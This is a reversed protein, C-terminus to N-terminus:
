IAGAFGRNTPFELSIVEERGAKQDCDEVVVVVVVLVEV